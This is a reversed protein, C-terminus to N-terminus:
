EKLNVRSPLGRSFSYSDCDMMKQHTFSSKLQIDVHSRKLKLYKDFSNILCRSRERREHTRGVQRTEQADSYVLSSMAERLHLRSPIFSYINFTLPTHAM